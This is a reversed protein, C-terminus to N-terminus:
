FLKLASVISSSNNFSIILFILISVLFFSVPLIYMHLNNVIKAKEPNEVNCKYLYIAEITPIAAYIYATLIMYDMITLYPLKPM